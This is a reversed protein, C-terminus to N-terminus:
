ASRMRTCRGAAQGRLLAGSIGGQVHRHGREDPMGIQLSQLLPVSRACKKVHEDKWGDRVVEGQLVEFLMHARGRTSHEEELTVMYSPCMSGSDHKRCEGLGSAACRPRPLRATM